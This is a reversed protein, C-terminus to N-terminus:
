AMSGVESKRVSTLVVDVLQEVVEVARGNMLVSHSDAGSMEVGATRMSHFEPELSQDSVM